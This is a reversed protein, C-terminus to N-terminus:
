VPYITRRLRVPPLSTLDETIVNVKGVFEAKAAQVPPVPLVGPNGWHKIGSFRGPVVQFSTKFEVPTTILPATQEGLTQPTFPEHRVALFM